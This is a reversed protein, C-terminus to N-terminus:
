SRARTLEIAPKTRRLVVVKEVLELGAISEQVIARLQVQKGRRYTVDATLIVRAQADEIRSRLAGVSFGAYVVSHVAGIRACALM